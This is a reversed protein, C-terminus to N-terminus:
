YERIVRINLRISGRQVALTTDHAQPDLMRGLESTSSVPQDGVAVIIDGARLGVKAADSGQDVLSVVAGRGRDAGLRDALTQGMDEAEFGFANEPSTGDRVLQDAVRAATSGPLLLATDQKADSPAGTGAIGIVRGALDLIPEGSWNADLANELRVYDRLSDAEGVFDDSVFITRAVCGTTTAPVLALGTQGIRPFGDDAFHLTALGNAEVKFLALGSLRDLGQRAVPLVTGDSLVAEIPGDPVASAVSLLYGDPSVFFGVAEVQRVAATSIRRHSKRKARVIEPTPASSASGSKRLLMIAPCNRDVIDPMAELGRPAFAAFRVPGVVKQEVTAVRPGFNAGIAVGLLVLLLILIAAGAARVMSKGGAGLVASVALADPEESESV